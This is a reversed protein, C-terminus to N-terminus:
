FSMLELNQLDVEAKTVEKQLEDMSGEDQALQDMIELNQSLDYIEVVEKKLDSLEQTIRRANDPDNWLTPSASEVELIEIKKKKDPINIAEKTKNLRDILDKIQQKIDYM